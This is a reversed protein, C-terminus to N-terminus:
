NVDRSTLPLSRNYNSQRRYVDIAASSNISKSLSPINFDSYQNKFWVEGPRLKDQLFDCIIEAKNTLEQQLLEKDQKLSSITETM